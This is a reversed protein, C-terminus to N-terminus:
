ASPGPDVSNTIRTPLFTLSHCQWANSRFKMVVLKKSAVETNNAKHKVCAQDETHWRRVQLSRSHVAERDLCFNLESHVLSAFTKRSGSMVESLYVSPLNAIISASFALLPTNLSAATISPKGQSTNPARSIHVRTAHPPVQASVGVRRTGRIQPIMMGSYCRNAACGPFRERSGSM